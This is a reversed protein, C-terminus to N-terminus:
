DRLIKLCDAVSAGQNICDTLRSVRDRAGQSHINGGPIHRTLKRHGESWALRYYTGARNEYPEIRIARQDGQRSTTPITIVRGEGQRSTTIALAAIAIPSNLIVDALTDPYTATAIPPVPLLDVFQALEVDDGVNILGGPSPLPASFVQEIPIEQDCRPAVGPPPAQFAQEIPIEQDCRPAVGPPPAPFAQEIPIESFSLQDGLVPRDVLILDQPRFAIERGTRDSRVVLRGPKALSPGVVVGRAGAKKHAPGVEVSDGPNLM